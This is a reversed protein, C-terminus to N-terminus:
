VGEMVWARMGACEPRAAPGEYRFGLWELFRASLDSNSLARIKAFRVKMRGVEQRLNKCFTLPYCRIMPASAFIFVECEDDPGPAAGLVALVRGRKTVTSALGQEGLVNMAARGREILDRQEFTSCHIADLHAPTFNEIM